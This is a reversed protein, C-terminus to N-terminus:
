VVYPSNVEFPSEQLHYYLHENVLPIQSLDKPRILRFVPIQSALIASQHFCKEVGFIPLLQGRFLSGYWHPMLALLAEKESLPLIKIIPSPSYELLYLAKLPFPTPCFSHSVVRNQKKYESHEDIYNLKEDESLLSQSTEEWLKMGPFAPLPKLSKEKQHNLVLLDDSVLSNGENLLATAITSKGGGKQAAFGVSCSHDSINLVSCHFVSYYSRQNLLVGWVPGTLISRLLGERPPGHGPAMTVLCGDQVWFAGIESWYLLIGESSHTIKRTYRLQDWGPPLPVSGWRFHVDAEEAGEYPILEELLIESSLILGFVKYQYM